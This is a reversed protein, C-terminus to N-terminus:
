ALRLSTVALGLPRADQSGPILDRPRRPEDVRITLRIRGPTRPIPVTLERWTDAPLSFPTEGCTVFLGEAPAHEAVLRGAVPGLKPEGSYGRVVLHVAEGESALHAVAEGGTWRVFGLRGWHERHYWGPGLQADDGPGMTLTAQRVRHAVYLSEAAHWWRDDHSEEAHRDAATRALASEIAGATELREALVWQGGVHLGAEDGTRPDRWTTTALEVRVAGRAAVSDPVLLRVRVPRPSAPLALTMAPHGALRWRTWAPPADNGVPHAAMLSILAPGRGPPLPVTFAARSGTLRFPFTLRRTFGQVPQEDETLAGFGEVGQLASWEVLTAGSRYARVMLQARTAPIWWRLTRAAWRELGSVRRSTLSPIEHDDDLCDSFYVHELRFDYLDKGQRALYYDLEPATYERNHRHYLLSPFLAYFPRTVPPQWGWDHLWRFLTEARRLNPTTLILLGGPRLVRFIEKLTHFPNWHLHEFLECFLVADVSATPVPLPEREVECGGIELKRERCRELFAAWPGAGEIDNNIGAVEWGRAQALASLHGPFSGVDLLRRGQGAPLLRLTDQYRRRHYDLYGAEWPPLAGRAFAEVERTIAALEPAAADDPPTPWLGM